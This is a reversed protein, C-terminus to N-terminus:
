YSILFQPSQVLNLRLSPLTSSDPILQAPNLQQFNKTLFERDFVELFDGSVNVDPIYLEYESRIRDVNERVDSLKSSFAVLIIPDSFESVLESLKKVTFGMFNQYRVFDDSAFIGSIKIGRLKLVNIIKAAGDGMGYILISKNSNKLRCYLDEEAFLEPVFDTM